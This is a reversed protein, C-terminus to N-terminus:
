SNKKLNDRYAIIVHCPFPENDSYLVPFGKQQASTIFHALLTFISQVFAHLIVTKWYISVLTKFCGAIEM